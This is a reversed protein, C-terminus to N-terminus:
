SLTDVLGARSISRRIFRFETTRFDEPGGSIALSIGNETGTVVWRLASLKKRHSLCKQLIVHENRNVRIVCADVKRNKSYTRLGFGQGADRTESPRIQACIGTAM